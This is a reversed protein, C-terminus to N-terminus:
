PKPAEPPVTEPLKVTVNYKARLKDYLAERLEKRRVNAWERQVLPRVEELAATGGPTMSDLRVLHVGYGSAIPGVWRGVPQEFLAEAFKDGFLRSVVPKTVDEYHPELLLLSDSLKEPKASGGANLADILRKADGDLTKARRQPDLYVQSFTARPAVQFQDPHAALYDALEKDTPAALAAAEDSVFEMKQRLRRRIITDDRDLGLALAERYLVEERIYDQVLGDLEARTPPRQWTRRFNQALNRIRAEGVVIEGGGASDPPPRLWADLAFLATGLLLFHVLPERLLSRLM